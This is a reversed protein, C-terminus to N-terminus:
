DRGGPSVVVPGGGTSHEAMGAEKSRRPVRVRRQAEAQATAEVQVDRGRGHQRAQADM